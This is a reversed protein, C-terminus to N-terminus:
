EVGSLMVLLREMQIREPLRSGGKMGADATVLATIIQEAKTRGIRRLYATALSMDRPFVGADKLAQDLPKQRALETAHALKRFVFGIGGLLRQPAEGAHLLQDLADLADSVRGERVADTMAWTTETRWGGVLGRVDDLSIRKRDGVYASLKCLETDLLGPEEGILEVLLAAADRDLKVGYTENAANNLWRVLDGGKLPSCDIELGSKAVQKALW